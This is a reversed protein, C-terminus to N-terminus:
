LYSWVFSGSDGGASKMDSIIVDEFLATFSGYSVNVVGHADLVTGSTKCTTRGTKYVTLGERAEVVNDYPPLPTYGEQVINTMKCVITAQESGAFLLGVSVIGTINNEDFLKNSFEVKPVAVSFDIKNASGLVIPQLRTKRKFLTAFVNYINCVTKGIPCNSQSIFPIVPKHWFYEAVVDDLTGGDYHGPQTIRKERIESPQKSPDGDTYVHANSSVYINGDKGKMLCASTGATIAYNGISVGIPVPRIKETKSVDKAKPISSSLFLAKVEGIEIVDTKIGDFALPIIMEERLFEKPVKKSVYVRLSPETTEQGKVIKPQYVQSFGVVNPYETFVKELFKKHEKKLKEGIM